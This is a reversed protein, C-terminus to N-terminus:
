EQLEAKLQPLLEQEAYARLDEGSRADQIVTLGQREAADCLLDREDRRVGGGIVVAGVDGSQMQSIAETDSTTGASDLGSEQILSVMQDVLEEEKAVILAKM